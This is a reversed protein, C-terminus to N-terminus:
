DAATTEPHHIKDVRRQHRGGEFPTDLFARLVQEAYSPALMRGALTLVNANNHARALASTHPEFCNAARIGPVKNAAIAMGVGTGCVLLGWDAATAAVKVGVQQAFDPYDVSATSAPGVDEVEFGHDRLYAVLHDKLELGAHDSGVAVRRGAEALTSM